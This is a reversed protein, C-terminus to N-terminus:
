SAREEAPADGPTPGSGQDASAPVEFPNQGTTMEALLADASGAQARRVDGALRELADPEGDAPALAARLREVSASVETDPVLSPPPPVEPAVVREPLRRGVNEYTEGRLMRRISELGMSVGVKSLADKIQPATAGRFAADRAWAVHAPTLVRKREAGVYGRSDAANKTM